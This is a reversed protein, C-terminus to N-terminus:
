CALLCSAVTCYLYLRAPMTSQMTSTQKYKADCQAAYQLQVQADYMYKHSQFTDGYEAKMSELWFAM